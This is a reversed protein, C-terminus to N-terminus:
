AMAARSVRRPAVALAPRAREIRGRTLAEAKLQGFAEHLGAVTLDLDDPARDRNNPDAAEALRLRDRAVALSNAAAALHPGLARFHPGLARFHPGLARFYLGVLISLEVLDENLGALDGDVRPFTKGQCLDYRARFYSLSDVCTKEARRYLDESKRSRLWL